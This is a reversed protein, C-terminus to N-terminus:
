LVQVPCVQCLGQAGLAREERSRSGLLPRGSPKQNLQIFCSFWLPSWHLWRAPFLTRACVCRRTGPDESRSQECKHREERPHFLAM